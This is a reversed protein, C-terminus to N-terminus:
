RTASRRRKWSLGALFLGGILLKLSVIAFTIDRGFTGSDVIVHEPHAPDYRINMTSGAGTPDGHQHPEPVLMRQGTRTMFTIVSTDNGDGRVATVPVFRARQRADHTHMSWTLFGAGIGLLAVVIGIVMVTTARRRSWPKRVPKPRLPVTGTVLTGDRTVGVMRESRVRDYERRQRPDGLVAYAATVDSFRRAAAEDTTADPHSRKAQERFARTVTDADANPPVGLLAYFDVTAWDRVRTGNAM